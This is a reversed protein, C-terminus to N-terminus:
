YSITYELKWVRALSYAKRCFTISCLCFITQQWGRLCHKCPSSGCYAIRPALASIDGSGVMSQQYPAAGYPMYSENTGLLQPQGQWPGDDYQAQATASM